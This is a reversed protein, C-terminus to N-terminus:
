DRPVEPNTVSGSYLAFCDAPAPSVHEWRRASEVWRSPRHCDPCRHEGGDGQGLPVAYGCAKCRLVADSDFTSFAGCCNTLRHGEDDYRPPLLDATEIVSWVAAGAERVAFGVGPERRVELTLGPNRAALIRRAEALTVRPRSM